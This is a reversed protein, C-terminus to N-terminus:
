PEPELELLFTQSRSWLVAPSLLLYSLNTFTLELNFHPILSFKSNSLVVQIRNQLICNKLSYRYPVTGHLSHIKFVRFFKLIRSYFRTKEKRCLIYSLKVSSGAEGSYHLISLISGPVPSTGLAQGQGLAEPGAHLPDGHLLQQHQLGDQDQLGECM